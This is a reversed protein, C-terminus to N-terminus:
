EEPPPLAAILDMRRETMSTPDFIVFEGSYPDTWVVVDNVPTPWVQFDRPKENSNPFRAITRTDGDLTRLEIGTETGGLFNGVSQVVVLHDGSFGVLFVDTDKSESLPDYLTSLKGTEVDYARLKAQFGGSKFQEWVIKGDRAFIFDGWPVRVNRAITKREGTDLNMVDISGSNELSLVRVDVDENNLFAIHRGTMAFSSPPSGVNLVRQREGSELDLLTDEWPGEFGPGTLNSVVLERQTLAILRPGREGDAWQFYQAEERTELDYVHISGEPGSDRWAIRDNAALVSDPDVLVDPLLLEVELTDLDLAYVDHPQKSSSSGDQPGKSHVFVLRNDFGGVVSYPPAEGLNEGSRLLSASYQDLLADCGVLGCTLCALLSWSCAPNRRLLM